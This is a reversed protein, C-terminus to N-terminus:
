IMKKKIGVQWAPGSIGKYNKWRLLFKLVFKKETDFVMLTNKNVEYRTKDMTINDFSHYSLTGNQCFIFLKEMQKRVMNEIAEFNIDELKLGSLYQEISHDVIEYLQNQVRPNSKMIGYLQKQINTNYTTSNITRRYGELSPIDDPLNACDMYRPLFHQYWFNIYDNGHRTLSFHRNTLYISIFQPYDFLNKGYKFEIKLIHQTFLKKQVSVAFDYNNGRGAKRELMFNDYVVHNPVHKKFIEVFQSKLRFFDPDMENMDTNFMHLIADERLKNTHDNDKRQCNNYFLALVNDRPPASFNETTNQRQQLLILIDHKRRGSYGRVNLRKCEQILEKRKMDIYHGLISTTANSKHFM